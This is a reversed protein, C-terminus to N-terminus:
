ADGAPGDAAPAPQPEDPLPWFDPRRSLALLVAGAIVSALIEAGTGVSQQDLTMTTSPGFVSDNASHQRMYQLAVWSVAQPVAGALLFLGAVFSALAPVHRASLSFAVDRDPRSFMARALPGAALWVIVAAGLPVLAFVAVAARGWDPGAPMWPLSGLTSLGGAGLWLAFTRLVITAVDDRTM